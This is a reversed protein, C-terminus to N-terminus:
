TNIEYVMRYGHMKTVKKILQIFDKEKEATYDRCQMFVKREFCSVHIRIFGAKLAAEVADCEDELDPYEYCVECHEDIQFLFGASDRWFSGSRESDFIDNLYM